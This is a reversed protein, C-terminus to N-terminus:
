VGACAGAASSARRPGNALIAAQTPKKRAVEKTMCVLSNPWPLRRGSVETFRELIARFNRRDKASARRVLAIQGARDENARGLALAFVALEPTGLKYSPVTQTPSIQMEAIRFGPRAAYYERREVEYLKRTDKVATSM